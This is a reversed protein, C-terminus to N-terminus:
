EERCEVQNGEKISYEAVSTGDGKSGPRKMGVVVMSHKKADKRM